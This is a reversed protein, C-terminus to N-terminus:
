SASGLPSPVEDRAKRRNRRAALGEAALGLITRRSRWALALWDRAGIQPFYIGRFFLRGILLTARQALPREGMREVAAAIATPSYSSTWAHRVEAHAEEASMRLPEHAMRFAHFDLWHKPRTLRGATELRAYLPTGPLPVLTGFVPIGPPWDRMRELTREASGPTDNDMGFIFSTIALLGRDALRELM